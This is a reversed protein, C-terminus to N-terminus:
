EATPAVEAVETAEPHKWPQNYLRKSFEPLAVTQGAEFIKSRECERACWKNMDAPGDPKAHGGEYTGPDAPAFGLEHDALLAHDDPDNGFRVKPRANIGWAKACQGDCALTVARGSWPIQQTYM